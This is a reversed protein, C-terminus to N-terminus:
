TRHSLQTVLAKNAGPTPDDNLPLSQASRGRWEAIGFATVHDGLGIPIDGHCLAAGKLADLSVWQHTAAHVKDIWYTNAKTLDPAATRGVTALWEYAQVVDDLYADFEEVRIGSHETLVQRLRKGLATRHADAQAQKVQYEASNRAARLEILVADADAVLAQAEQEAQLAERWARRDTAGLLIEKALPQRSVRILGISEQATDRAASVKAIADDISL